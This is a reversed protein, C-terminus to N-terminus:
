LIESINLDLLEQKTDIRKSVYQIEGGVGHKTVIYETDEYNTNHFSYGNDTEIEYTVICVIDGVITWFKGIPIYVSLSNTKQDIFMKCNLTKDLFSIINPNITTM